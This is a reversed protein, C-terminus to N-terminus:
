CVGTYHIGYLIIGIEDSYLHEVCDCEGDHDIDILEFPDEMFEAKTILLMAEHTSRAWAWEAGFPAIRVDDIWLKM